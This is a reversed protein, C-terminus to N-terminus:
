FLKVRDKTLKTKFSWFSDTGKIDIRKIEFPQKLPIKNIRNGIRFALDINHKKLTGQFELKRQGERPYKGYPYALVKTYNINMSNLTSICKQLDDEIEKTTITNYNGHAFSHLGFEVLKPNISKLTEANMIPDIGKDWANVKGMYKVPIFITAKLKLEHLIPILLEFNNQYADDFTILVPKKPLPVGDKINAILDNCFISTYGNKKLYNLQLRLKDREITLDDSKNESVKHYMLIPLGKSAPILLSYQLTLFVLVLLIVACTIIITM